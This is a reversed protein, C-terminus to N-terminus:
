HYSKTPNTKRNLKAWSTVPPAVRVIDANNYVSYRTARGHNYNGVVTLLRYLAQRASIQAIFFIPIHHM